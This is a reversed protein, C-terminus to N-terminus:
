CHLKIEDPKPLEGLSLIFSRRDPCHRISWKKSIIRIYLTPLFEAFYRIWFLSFITFYRIRSLDFSTFYRIRIFLRKGTWNWYLESYWETIGAADQKDSAYRTYEVDEDRVFRLFLPSPWYRRPCAIWVSPWTELHNPSRNLFSNELLSKQHNKVIKKLFVQLLRFFDGYKRCSM